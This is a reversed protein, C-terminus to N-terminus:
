VCLLPGYVNFILFEIFYIGICMYLAFECNISLAIIYMDRTVHHCYLLLPLKNGRM